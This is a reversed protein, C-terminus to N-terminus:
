LHIVKLIVDLNCSDLSDLSDFIAEFTNPKLMINPYILEVM